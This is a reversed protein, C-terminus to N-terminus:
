RSREKRIAALVEDAVAEIESEKLVPLEMAGPRDKLFPTFVGAWEDTGSSQEVHFVDLGAATKPERCSDNLVRLKEKM